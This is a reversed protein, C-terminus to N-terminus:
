EATTPNFATMVEAATLVADLEDMVDECMGTLGLRNFTILEACHDVIDQIQDVTLDVPVTNTIRGEEDFTNVMLIIKKSM